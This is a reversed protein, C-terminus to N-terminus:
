RVQHRNIIHEMENIASIVRNGMSSQTKTGNETLALFHDTETDRAEQLTREVAGQNKMIVGIKLPQGEEPTQLVAFGGGWNRGLEDIIFSTKTTYLEDNEGSRHADSKNLNTTNLLWAGVPRESKIVYRDQKTSPNNVGTTYESITFSGSSDTGWGVRGTYPVLVEIVANQPAGSHILRDVMKDFGSKIADHRASAEATKVGPALGHAATWSKSGRNREIAAARRDALTKQRALRAQERLRAGAERDANASGQTTDASQRADVMAQLEDRRALLLQMTLDNIQQQVKEAESPEPTEPEANSDEPEGSASAESDPTPYPTWAPTESPTSAASDTTGGETTSPPEAAGSDSSGEPAGGLPLAGLRRAISPRWPIGSHEGQENTNGTLAAANQGM